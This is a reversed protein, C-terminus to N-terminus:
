LIRGEIEHFFHDCERAVEEPCEDPSMHEYNEYTEFKAGPIMAAVELANRVNVTADRMGYLIMIPARIASIQRRFEEDTQAGCVCLSSVNVEHEEKKRDTLIDLHEQMCHQRHALRRPDKTPYTAYWSIEKLKERNGEMGERYGMSVPCPAGPPTFVPVGSVAAFGRLREPCHFATYWGALTGHSIGTYYFRKAGIADAFALLDAGWVQAWDQPRSDFVHTSKGFGRMKVLFSHYDYPPKGLLEMHNGSIFFNQTTLLIKDGHGFEQYELEVGNVKMIPM